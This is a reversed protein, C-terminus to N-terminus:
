MMSVEVKGRRVPTAIHRRSQAIALVKGVADEICESAETDGLERLMLAAAAYFLVVFQACVGCRAFGTLLM